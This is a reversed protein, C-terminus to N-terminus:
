RMAEMLQMQCPLAIVRQEQDSSHVHLMVAAPTVRLSVNPMAPWQDDRILNDAEHCTRQIHGEESAWRWVIRQGTASTLMVSQPSQGAAIERSTWVDKQLLRTIADWQSALNSAVHTHHTLRRTQTFAQSVMLMVVGLLSIVVLIEILSMALCRRTSQRSM